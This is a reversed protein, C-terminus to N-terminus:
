ETALRALVDGLCLKVIKHRRNVPKQGTLVFMDGIEQFREDPGQTAPLIFRLDTQLIVGM